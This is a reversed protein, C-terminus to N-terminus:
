VPKSPSGIGGHNCRRRPRSLTQNVRTTIGGQVVVGNQDKVRKVDDGQSGFGEILDAPPHLLGGGPVPSAFAVRQM